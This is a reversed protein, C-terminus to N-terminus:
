RPGAAYGSSFRTWASSKCWRCSTPTCILNWAAMDMICGLFLLVLNIPRPYRPSQGLDETLGNAVRAPVEYLAMLYGFAAAAGVLMMVMATTRISTELVKRFDQWSLSRYVLTTVLLAYIAGVAGLETVTFIGSLSGGIIIVATFLGPLAGLGALFLTRFGPFREQPYGRRRAVLYAAGALLLCMILGPVVGALFLRTISIAGGAALSYLIMNHSPPFMIGAISSTITVNVAYDAHYGKARMAPIMVAGTASVDAVASGPSIGGFMMNSLVTVIGLGGEVRGVAASAFDVIRLAIGGRQMAEGAWVFFPIALLTFIGIGATM